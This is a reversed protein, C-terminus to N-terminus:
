TSSLCFRLLYYLMILCRPLKKRPRYGLAISQFVKKPVRTPFRVGLTMVNRIFCGKIETVRKTPHFRWQTVVGWWIEVFYAFFVIDFTILADPWSIDYCQQIFLPMNSAIIPRVRSAAEQIVDRSIFRILIVWASQSVYEVVCIFRCKKLRGWLIIAWYKCHVCKRIYM